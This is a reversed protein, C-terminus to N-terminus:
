GAVQTGTVTLTFDTVAGSVTQPADADLVVEVCATGTVGVPLTYYGSGTDFATPRASYGGLGARCDSARAVAALRVTLEDLVAADPVSPVYAVKAGTLALRISLPVTGTNRVTFTGTTSTGPALPAADTVRMATVALTATGSRITVADTEASSNWLAYTSGSGMVAASVAAALAIGLTWVWRRRRPARHRGTTPTTRTM